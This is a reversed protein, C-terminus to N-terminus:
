LRPFGPTQAMIGREHAIANCAAVARAQARNDERNAVDVAPFTM